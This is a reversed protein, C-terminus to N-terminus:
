TVRLLILFESCSCIVWNSEFVIMGLDGTPQYGNYYGLFDIFWTQLSFFNAWSNFINGLPNVGYILQVITGIAVM